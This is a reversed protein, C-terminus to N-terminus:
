TRGAAPAPPRVGPHAPPIDTERATLSRGDPNATSATAALCHQSSTLELAPGIMAPTPTRIPPGEAVRAPSSARAAVIPLPRPARTSAAPVGQWTRGQFGIWREPVCHGCADEACNADSRCEPTVCVPVRVPETRLSARCRLRRQQRCVAYCRNEEFWGGSVTETIKRCSEGPACSKGECGCENRQIANPMDPCTSAEPADALGCVKFDGSVEFCDPDGPLSCDCALDPISGSLGHCAPASPADSPTGSEGATGPAVGADSGPASRDAASGGVVWRSRQRL